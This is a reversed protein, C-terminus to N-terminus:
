VRGDRRRRVDNGNANGVYLAAIFFFSFTEVVVTNPSTKIHM